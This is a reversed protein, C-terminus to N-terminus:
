NRATRTASKNQEMAAENQAAPYGMTSDVVGGSTHTEGTYGCASLAIVATLAMLAIYNKM